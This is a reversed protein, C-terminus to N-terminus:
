SPPCQLVPHCEAYLYYHEQGVCHLLTSIPGDPLIVMWKEMRPSLHIVLPLPVARALFSCMNHSSM